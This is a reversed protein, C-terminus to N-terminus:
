NGTMPIRLVGAHITGLLENVSAESLHLFPQPYVGIGIILICIIALVLRESGAIDTFTSTLENLEGQMVNKYM